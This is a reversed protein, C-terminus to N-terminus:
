LEGKKVLLIIIVVLAVLILFGLFWGGTFKEAKPSQAERQAYAREEEDTGPQPAVATEPAPAAAPAATSAVAAVPQDARCPKVDAVFFLGAALVAPLVVDLIRM